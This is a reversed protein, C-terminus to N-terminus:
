LTKSKSKLKIALQRLMHARCRCKAEGFGPRIRCHRLLSVKRGDIRISQRPLADYMQAADSLYAIIKHLDTRCIEPM